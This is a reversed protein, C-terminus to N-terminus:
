ALDLLSFICAFQYRGLIRNYNSSEHEEKSAEEKRRSNGKKRLHYLAGLFELDGLTLSFSLSLIILSSRFQVLLLYGFRALQDRSAKKYILGRNEENEM